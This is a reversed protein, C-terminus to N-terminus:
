DNKKQDTVTTSTSSPPPTASTQRSKAEAEAKAQNIEDLSVDAFDSGVEIRRKDVPYIWRQYLYVIFVVDDRFVRLRHMTPMRILFAFIDDIFTSIAKYIFVRWPLHAVSKLKYNIFLQPTMMIFGFTYVVGAFTGVIFSYWSRHTDYMVSYIAYGGVLPISLWYLYKMAVLDHDKTHSKVYDDKDKLIPYPISKYYGITVKAAKTIKWLEIFLGVAVSFLIMWSTDNDLLYLLIILSSIVNYYITQVSMGEMSKKERWFQIDNKFALTDLVTHVISIVMTALLVYPNNDVLLRKFDEMEGEEAGFLNKQLSFSDDMQSYM